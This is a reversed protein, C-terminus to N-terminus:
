ASSSRTESIEQLHVAWYFLRQRPRLFMAMLGRVDAEGNAPVSRAVALRDGVLLEAEGAVVDGAVGRDAEGCGVVGGPDGVGGVGASLGGDAV